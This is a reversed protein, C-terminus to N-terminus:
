RFSAGPLPRCVTTSLRGNTPWLRARCSVRPPSRAPMAMPNTRGDPMREIGAVSNFAYGTANAGLKARAEEHGILQCILAFIFPKSVSMISFEHDTEGVAFVNGNTGVVCIGFLDRPVRALAPYVQSNEGEDNSKFRDYADRVLRQVDEPSPLHGTSVYGADDDLRADM